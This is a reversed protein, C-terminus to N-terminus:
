DFFERGKISGSSENSHECCDVRLIWELIKGDIDLDELLDRGKQIESLFKSYM